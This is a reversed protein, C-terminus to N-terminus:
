PARSVIIRDPQGPEEAAIAVASRGQCQRALVVPSVAEQECSPDTFGVAFAMGLLQAAVGIAEAHAQLDQRAISRATAAEALHDFLGEGSLEASVLKGAALRLTLTFDVAQTTLGRQEPLEFSLLFRKRCLDGECSGPAGDEFFSRRFEASWEPLERDFDNLRALQEVWASVARVFNARALKAADLDEQRIREAGLFTQEEAAVAGRLAELQEIRAKVLGARPASPLQAYYRQLNSLDDWHRVLYREDARQFWREVDGRFAGQPEAQLYSFAAQLRELFGDSLRIARYRAYDEPTATLSRAAACASLALCLFCLWFRSKM